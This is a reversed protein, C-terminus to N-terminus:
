DCQSRTEKEDLAMAMLFDALEGCYEQVYALDKYTDDAYVARELHGQLYAPTLDGAHACDFGLWWVNHPEGPYPVHCIRPETERESCVNAFTLGGHAPAQYLLEDDYDLGYAPHGPPVAVYGCWAGHHGRVALCTIGTAADRWQAKDPEDHWPGPPWASKDTFTKTQLDTITETVISSGEASAKATKHRGPCARCCNRCGAARM